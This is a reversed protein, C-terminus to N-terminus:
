GAMGEVVMNYGYDNGVRYLVYWKRDGISVGGRTITYATVYSSLWLLSSLLSRSDIYDLVVGSWPCWMPFYCFCLKVDWVLVLLDTRELCTAVLCCHVSAFAHIVCAMLLM